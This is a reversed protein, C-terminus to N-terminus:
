EYEFGGKVWEKNTWPSPMRYPVYVFVAEIQEIKGAKIKFTEMLCWTHPRRYSANMTRGDTLKYEGIVGAHDIFAAAMVLGREEDIVEFRRSRLRDDFLYYGLKFAEECGMRMTPSAGEGINNTTQFGNERRNCAPDFVTHIQGNNQQLTNFYGDALEIMRKRPTRQEPTLIENLIPKDTLDATTFPVLSDQPRAVITEIETIKKDKVKLRLTYPAATRAETLVGYFGIGGAEPDAFRFDYKGMSAITGWVGDGVKLAVNNETYRVDSALPAKSPDKAALAALYEDLVGYLCTRDCNASQQAATMSACGAAAMALIVALLRM